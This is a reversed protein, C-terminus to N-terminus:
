KTTVSLPPLVTEMVNWGRLELPALTNAALVWLNVFTGKYPLPQGVRERTIEGKLGRYARAPAGLIRGPAARASAILSGM